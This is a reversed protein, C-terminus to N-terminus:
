EYINPSSAYTNTEPSIISDTPNKIMKFFCCPHLFPFNQFQHRIGPLLFSAPCCPIKCTRGSQSTLPNASAQTMDPSLYAHPWAEAMGPLFTQSNLFISNKVLNKLFGYRKFRLDTKTATRLTPYSILHVKNYHPNQYSHNILNHRPIRFRIM